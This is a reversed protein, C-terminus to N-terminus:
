RSTALRPQKSYAIMALMLVMMMRRLSDFLARLCSVEVFEEYGWDFPDQAEDEVQAPVGGSNMEVVMLRRMVGPAGMMSRELDFLSLLEHPLQVVDSEAGQPEVIEDPVDIGRQGHGEM